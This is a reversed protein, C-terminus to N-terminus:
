HSSPITSHVANGNSPLRLARKCTTARAPTNEGTPRQRAHATDLQAAGTRQALARMPTMPQAQASAHAASNSILKRKEIFEHM